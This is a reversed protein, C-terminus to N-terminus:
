EWLKENRKLTAVNWPRLLTRSAYAVPRRQGNQVQLLVADLGVFSADAILETPADPKFYALTASTALRKKLANFSAQQEKGWIFPTGKIILRRLPEAITSM